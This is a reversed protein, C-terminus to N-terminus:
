HSAIAGTSAATNTTSAPTSVPSSNNAAGVALLQSQPVQLNEVAAKVADFLNLLFNYQQLMNSWESAAGAGTKNSAPQATTSDPLNPSQNSSSLNLPSSSSTASPAPSTSSTSPASSTTAGDSTQTASSEVISASTSLEATFPIVEGDALTIEGSGQLTISNSAELVTASQDVGQGSSVEQAAGVTNTSQSNFSNITVTAGALESPSSLKSALENEAFEGLLSAGSSTASGTQQLPVSWANNQPTLELGLSSPINYFNLNASSSLTVQTSQLVVTSAAAADSNNPSSNRQSNASSSGTVPTYSSSPSQLANINMM